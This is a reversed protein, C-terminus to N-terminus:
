LYDSIFLIKKEKEQLSKVTDELQRITKKTKDLEDEAQRLRAEAVRRGEQEQEIHAILREQSEMSHKTRELYNTKEVHYWIPKGDQDVMTKKSWQAAGFEIDNLKAMLKRGELTMSNMFKVDEGHRDPREIRCFAISTTGDHDRCMEPVKLNDVPRLTNDMGQRIVEKNIFIELTESTKRRDGGLVTINRIYLDFIKAM